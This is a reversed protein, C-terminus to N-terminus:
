PSHFFACSLSNTEMVVPHEIHHLLHHHADGAPSADRTWLLRSSAPPCLSPLMLSGALPCKEMKDLKGDPILLHIHLLSSCPNADMDSAPIICPFPFPPPLLIQIKRRERQRRSSARRGSLFDASSIGRSSYMVVRTFPCCSEHSELCLISIPLFMGDNGHMDFIRRVREHSRADTAPFSPIHVATERNWGIM